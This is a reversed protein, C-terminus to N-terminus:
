QGSSDAKALIEAVDFDAPVSPRKSRVLGFGSPPLDVPTSVLFIEAHDGAVRFGVKSGTRLGLKQRVAKPITVQGKSTIANGSM